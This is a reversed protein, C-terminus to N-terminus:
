SGAQQVAAVWGRELETLWVRRRHRFRHRKQECLLILQLGERERLFDEHSVWQLRSLLEDLSEDYDICAAYRGYRLVFNATSKHGTIRRQGTKIRRLFRELENNTRPLGNVDYCPFLGWWHSRLTQEIHAVVAHDAQEHGRAVEAKLEALYCEVAQAVNESTGPQQNLQRAPDLLHELDILRQRQWRLQKV